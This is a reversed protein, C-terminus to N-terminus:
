LLELKEHDVCYNTSAEAQEYHKKIREKMYIKNKEQLASIHICRDFHFEKNINLLVHM